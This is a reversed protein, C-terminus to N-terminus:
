VLFRLPRLPFSTPFVAGLTPPCDKMFNKENLTNTMTIDDLRAALVISRYIFTRLSGSTVVLLGSKLLKAKVDNQLTEKQAPSPQSTQSEKWRVTDNVM